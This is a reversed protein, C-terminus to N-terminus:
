FLGRCNPAGCNCERTPVKAAYDVTIEDGVFIERTSKVAVCPMGDDTQGQQVNAPPHSSPLCCHHATDFQPPVLHRPCVVFIANSRCSHNARSVMSGMDRPDLVLDRMIFGLNAVYNNAIDLPQSLRVTGLLVGVVTGRAIRVAARISWGRGVTPWPLVPAGGGLASASGVTILRRRSTSVHIEHRAAPTGYTNQDILTFGIEDAWQEQRARVLRCAELYLPSTSSLRGDPLGPPLSALFAALDEM